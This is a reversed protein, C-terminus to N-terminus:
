LSSSEIIKVIKSFNQLSFLTGAPGADLKENMANFCTKVIKRYLPKSAMKILSEHEQQGFRSLPLFIQSLLFLAL